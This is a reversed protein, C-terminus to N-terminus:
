HSSVQLFGVPLQNFHHYKPPYNLLFELNYEKYGPLEKLPTCITNAEISRGYFYELDLPSNPIIKDTFQRYIIYIFLFVSIMSIM